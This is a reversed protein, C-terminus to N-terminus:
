RDRVIASAVGIASAVRRFTLNIRPEVVRASKPLDHRYNRQTAGAMLLLSGPALDLELRLAPDRRHRLRFRRTAGLSLSAICPQHGLEPEDDSHWGMSDRGDRYLNCLVSNYREGCLVSIRERLEACAPTWARPTFRTGSYTYVADTDGIWCSLRPSEVERGFLRLRHREWPIESHLRTFWDQASEADCFQALRVDSGPLDFTQWIIDTTAADRAVRVRGKGALPLPSLTPTTAKM